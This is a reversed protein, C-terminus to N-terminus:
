YAERVAGKERELFARFTGMPVGWAKTEDMDVFKAGDRLALQAGILPNTALGAAIEEDSYFQARFARGTAASLAEMVQGPTLREGVLNIEKGGFREPDQFAAVTFGAIDEPDILGLETDPTMATLWTNRQFLDPYLRAKPDLFNTMFFGPRLITWHEFGARRVLGEIANKVFLSRALLHDPPLLARREPADAGISGSYVVHTVGAARALRLIRTAWVRENDLSTYDPALALFLMACGALGSALAAEDDWDGPILTVGLAALTRAPGATPDRVTARVGLGLRCLHRCVASGQTGTPTVVFATPM